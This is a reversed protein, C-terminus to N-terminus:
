SAGDIKRRARAQDDWAWTMFNLFEKRKRGCNYIIGAFGIAMCRLAFDSNGQDTAKKFHDIMSQMIETAFAEQEPTMPKKM